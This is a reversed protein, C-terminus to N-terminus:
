SHNQKVLRQTHSRTKTNLQAFGPMELNGGTQVETSMWSIWFYPLQIVNKLSCPIVVETKMDKLADKKSENLCVRFQDRVFMVPKKLLVTRSQKNWANRPWRRSEEWEYQLIANLFLKM